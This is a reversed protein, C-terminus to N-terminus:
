FIVLYLFLRWEDEGLEWGQEQRVTMSFSYLNKTYCTICLTPNWPLSMKKKLWSLGRNASQLASSPTAPHINTNKIWKLLHGFTLTFIPPDTRLLQLEKSTCTMNLHLGSLNVTNHYRTNTNLLRGLNGLHLWPWLFPAVACNLLNVTWKFDMGQMKQGRGM